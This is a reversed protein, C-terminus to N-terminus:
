KELAVSSEAEPEVQKGSDAKGTLEIKGDQGLSAVVDRGEALQGSLIADTLAKELTRSLHRKLPRAGFQEDFGDKSFKEILEQSVELKIGRETELRKGIDQCLKETIKGIQDQSLPDFVIIEDLRNRFEPPLFAKLAEQMGEHASAVEQDGFGVPRKAKATAGANSTMILVTNKFDTVRGEGDTLRGDDMVQLLINLVDPHAKEIEDLLVVSYPRRRVPETLQGGKGYGVYGPPSGILRAVTHPERFESMDIRVLAKESAFMREALAKALETKGVGTPGLFLFSGIPQSPDGLGARARRVSDSVLTVAEDQGVVRAHLADELNRLREAEGALLEGAPVGTRAAIVAAVDQESVTVVEESPGSRAVLEGFRAECAILRQKIEEARTYDEKAVAEDKRVCLEAIEAKLEEVEGSPKVARLRVKAGAQDILDIAKDPLFQDSIYRASLKAAAVLADDSILAKHHAEYSGKLGRLISVTEEVSPEEVTVTSFRRALANDREIAKYEALTTAGIMHLDGRALMPKLMNAADMTGEASGAGLITHLEDIFLIIKGQSDSAEEIATKFRQEFQGRMQSGAIMGAIDLTVVRCGKITEPVEDNAIRLALGEVIATKGVGAEGILVANNKRRRALIEVMQEIEEARGIVPDIRGDFAEKTLDRGFKDLAPTPKRNAESITVEPENPEQVTGGAARVLAAAPSSEQALLGYVLHDLSVVSAREKTARRKSLLVIATMDPSLVTLPRREQVDLSIQTAFNQELQALGEDTVGSRQLAEKAAEFRLMSALLLETEVMPFGLADAMQMATGMVLGVEQSPDPNAPSAAPVPAQNGLAGSLMSILNTIGSGLGDINGFETEFCQACLLQGDNPDFDDLSGHKALITGPRLRCNECLRTNANPDPNSINM